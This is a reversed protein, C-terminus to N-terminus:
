CLTEAYKNLGIALSVAANYQGQESLIWELDDDNTLFALEILVAPGMTGVLIRFRAEKDPDGDSWDRRIKRLPFHDHFKNIIITAAKDSKTEGPSTFVEFGSAQKDHFGNCHISVTINPKISHEIGVRYNLDANLAMDGVYNLGFDKDTIRTMLVEHGFDELQQRLLISVDLNVDKEKISGVTAGAFRGGHGPDILIRM